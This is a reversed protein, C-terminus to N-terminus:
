EKIRFIVRNVRMLTMVPLITIFSLYYEFHFLERSRLIVPLALFVPYMILIVILIVIFMYTNIGASINNAYLLKKMLTHISATLIVSGALHFSKMFFQVYSYTSNSLDFTWKIYFIIWLLAPFGMILLVIIFVKRKLTNFIMEKSFLYLSPILLFSLSIFVLYQWVNSFPINIFLILSSAIMCIICFHIFSLTKYRNHVMCLLAAIGLIASAIYMYLRRTLSYYHLLEVHVSKIMGKRQLVYHLTDGPKHNEFIRNYLFHKNLIRQNNILFLTDGTEINTYSSMVDLGLFDVIVFGESYKYSIGDHALGEINIVATMNLIILIVLILIFLLKKYTIKM